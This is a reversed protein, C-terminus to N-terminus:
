QTRSRRDEAYFLGIYGKRIGSLQDKPVNGGKAPHIKKKMMTIIGEKWTNLGVGYNPAIEADDRLAYQTRDRRM